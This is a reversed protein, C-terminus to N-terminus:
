KPYVRRLFQKDLESLNNNRRAIPCKSLDAGEKMDERRFTYFTASDYDPKIHILDSARYTRTVIDYNTKYEKETRINYRSMIAKKDFLSSCDSDPHQHEHIAGLAHLIEHRIVGDYYNSQSRLDVGCLGMTPKNKGKDNSIVYVSQRGVYSYCGITQFSIRIDPSRESCNSLEKVTLNTLKVIEQFTDMVHNRGVKKGDMFCVLITHYNPWLASKLFIQETVGPDLKFASIISDADASNLSETKQIAKLVVPDLSFHRMKLDNSLEEPLASFQESVGIFDHSLATSPLSATIMAAVTSTMVLSRLNTM